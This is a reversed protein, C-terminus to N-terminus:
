LIKNTEPIIFELKPRLAKMNGFLPHCCKANGEILRTVRTKRRMITDGSISKRPNNMADLGFFINPFGSQYILHHPVTATDPKTIPGSFGGGGKETAVVV